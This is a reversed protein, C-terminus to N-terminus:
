ISKKKGPIHLNETGAEPRKERERRRPMCPVRRYVVTCTQTGAPSRPAHEPRELLSIQCTVVPDSESWSSGVLGMCAVSVDNKM